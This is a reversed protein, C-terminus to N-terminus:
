PQPNDAGAPVLWFKTKVEGNNPGDVFTVRGADYKRFTIAKMIQAKQKKIQAATGYNIIYGKASPNNNM